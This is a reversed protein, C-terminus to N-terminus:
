SRQLKVSRLNASTIKLSDLYFSDENFFTRFHDSVSKAGENELDSTTSPLQWTHLPQHRLGVLATALIEQRRIADNIGMLFQERNVMRDYAMLQMFEDSGREANLKEENIRRLEFEPHLVSDKVWESAEAFANGIRICVDAPATLLLRAAEYM